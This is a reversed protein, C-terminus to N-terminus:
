VKCSNITMMLRRHGASASRSWAGSSQGRGGDHHQRPQTGFRGVLNRKKRFRSSSVSLRLPPGPWSNAPTLQTLAALTARVKWDHVLARWQGEGVESPREQHNARLWVPDHYPNSRQQEGQWHVKATVLREKESIRRGDTRRRREESRMESGRMISRQRHLQQAALCLSM